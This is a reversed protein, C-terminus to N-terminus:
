QFTGHIHGAMEGDFSMDEAGILGHLLPDVLLRMVGPWGVSLLVKNHAVNSSDGPPLFCGLAVYKQM